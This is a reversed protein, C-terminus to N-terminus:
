AALPIQHGHVALVSGIKERGLDLRKLKLVAIEHPDLVRAGQIRTRVDEREYLTDDVFFISGAPIGHTEAYDRIAESKKGSPCPITDDLLPAIEPHALLFRNIWELGNRTVMVVPIGLAKAARMKAVIEQNLPLARMEEVTMGHIPPADDQTIVGDLDFCGAGWGADPDLPADVSPLANIM